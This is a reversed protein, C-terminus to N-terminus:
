RVRPLEVDVLWPRQVLGDGSGSVAANVFLMREGHELAHEDGVCHSTTCCRDQSYRELKKSREEADEQTDFRFPRVRALKDVV